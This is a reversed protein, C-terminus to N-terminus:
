ERCDVCPGDNAPYQTLRKLLGCAPCRRENRTTSDGPAPYVPRRRTDTKNTFM